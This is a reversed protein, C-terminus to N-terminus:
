PNPVDGDDDDDFSDVRLDIDFWILLATPDNSPLLLM